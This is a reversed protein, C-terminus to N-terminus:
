GPRAAACVTPITVNIASVGFGPALEHALSFKYGSRETNSRAVNFRYKSSGDPFPCEFSNMMLDQYQYKGTACVLHTANKASIRFSMTPFANPTTSIAYNSIFLKETPDERAPQAMAAAGFLAALTIFRM